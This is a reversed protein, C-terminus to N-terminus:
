RVVVITGNSGDVTLRDGTTMVSMADPVGVVAPIGLERAVIAAHCIVGGFEAVIAGSRLMGVTWAPSSERVVLVEGEKLADLDDVVRVLRATGTVSGSSAAIGTLTSPSDQPTM